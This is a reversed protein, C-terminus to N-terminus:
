SFSTKNKLMESVLEMGIVSFTIGNGYAWFCFLRFNPHKCHLAIWRQDRWLVRWVFDM